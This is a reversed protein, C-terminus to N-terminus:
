KKISELYQGEQSWGSIEPTYAFSYFIGWAILGFFLLLWGIPLRKKTDQREMDEIKDIDQAM